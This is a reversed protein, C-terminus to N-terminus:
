QLARQFVNNQNALLTMSSDCKKSQLNVPLSYILINDTALYWLNSKFSKLLPNIEIVLQNYKKESKLAHDCCWRQNETCVRWIRSSNVSSGTITSNALSKRSRMVGTKLSSTQKKMLWDPLTCSMVMLRTIKIGSLTALLSGKIHWSICLALM